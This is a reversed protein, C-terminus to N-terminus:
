VFGPKMQLQSLLRRYKETEEKKKERERKRRKGAVLSVSRQRTWKERGRRKIVSFTARRLPLDKYGNGDPSKHDRHGRRYINGASLLADGTRRNNALFFPNIPPMKSRGKLSTRWRKNRRSVNYIYTCVYCTRAHDFRAHAGGDRYM